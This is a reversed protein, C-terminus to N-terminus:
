NLGLYSCSKSCIVQLLRCVRSVKGVKVKYSFPFESFPGREIEVVRTKEDWLALHPNKLLFPGYNEPLLGETTEPMLSVM